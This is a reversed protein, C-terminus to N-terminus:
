LEYVSAMIAASHIRYTYALKTLYLLYYIMKFTKKERKSEEEKKPPQHQTGGRGSEERLVLSLSDFATNTNGLSEECTVVFIM